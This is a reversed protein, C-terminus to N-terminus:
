FYKKKWKEADEQLLNDVGEGLTVEDNAAEQARQQQDLQHMRKIKENVMLVREQHKELYPHKELEQKARQYFPLAMQYKEISEFNQAKFLYLDLATQAIARKLQNSLSQAVDKAVLNAQYCQHVYKLLAQAHSRIDNAEELSKIEAHAPNQQTQGLQNLREHVVNRERQVGTNGPSIQLITRLEKEVEQLTFQQLTKSSYQPPLSDIARLLRRALRHHHAVQVARKMEAQEIGQKVYFIGLLVAISGIILSIVIIPDM